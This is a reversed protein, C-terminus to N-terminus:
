QQDRLLEQAGFGSSRGRRQTSLFNKLRIVKKLKRGPWSINQMYECQDGIGMLENREREKLAELIARDSTEHLPWALSMAMAIANGHYHCSWPISM